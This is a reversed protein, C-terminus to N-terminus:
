CVRTSLDGGHSVSGPRSDLFAWSLPVNRAQQSPSLFRPVRRVLDCNIGQTSTDSTDSLHVVGRSRADRWAWVGRFLHLKEAARRVMLKFCMMKPVVRYFNHANLLLVM